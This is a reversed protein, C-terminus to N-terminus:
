SLRCQNVFYLQYDLAAFIHSLYHMPADYHFYVQRPLPDTIVKATNSAYTVTGIFM